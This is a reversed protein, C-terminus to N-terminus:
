KSTPKTTITHEQTWKAQAAKQENSLMSEVQPTLKERIEQSLRFMGPLDKALAVFQTGKGTVLKACAEKIKAKQDDTLKAAFYSGQVFLATQDILWKSKQENTVLDMLKIVLKSRVSEVTAGKEACLTACAEMITAKQEDTASFNSLHFSFAQMVTHELWKAKQEPTLLSLRDSQNKNYLDMMPAQMQALENGIQSIKAPDKNAIAEAMADQYPKLKADNDARWQEIAHDRALDISVMAQIQEESLGGYDKSSKQYGKTYMKGILEAHESDKVEKWKAKQEDTLLAM